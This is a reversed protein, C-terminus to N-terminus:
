YGRGEHSHEWWKDRSEPGTWWDGARRRAPDKVNLVQQSLRAYHDFYGKAPGRLDTFEDGSRAAPNARPDLSPEYVSGYVHRGSERLLPNSPARRRPAAARAAPAPQAPAAAAAAAAAAAPAAALVDAGRWAQGVISDMSNRLASHGTEGAAPAAAASAGSASEALGITSPMEFSEAAASQPAADLDGQEAATDSPVAALRARLAASQQARMRQVVEGEHAAWEKQASDQGASEPATASSEASTHFLSPSATKPVLRLQGTSDAAVFYEPYVGQYIPNRQEPPNTFRPIHSDDIFVPNINYPQDDYLMPSARNIDQGSGQYPIIEFVRGDQTNMARLEGNPGRFAKLVPASDITDLLSEYENRLAEVKAMDQQRVSRSKASWLKRMDQGLKDGVMKKEEALQQFKDPMTSPSLQALMEGSVFPVRSLTMSMLGVHRNANLGAFSAAMLTIACISLVAVLAEKMYMSEIMDFLQEQFSL